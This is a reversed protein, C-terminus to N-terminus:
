IHPNQTALAQRYLSVGLRFTQLNAASSIPRVSVRREKKEDRREREGRERVSTLRLVYADHVKENQVPGGEEPQGALRCSPRSRTGSDYPASFPPLYPPSPPRQEAVVAPAHVQLVQMYMSCHALRAVVLWLLSLFSARHVCPPVLGQHMTLCALVTACVAVYVCYDNVFPGSCNLREPPARQKGGNKMRERERNRLLTAGAM